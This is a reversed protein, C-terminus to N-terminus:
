RMRAFQHAAGLALDSVAQAASSDLRFAGAVRGPLMLGFALREFTRGRTEIVAALAVLESHPGGDERGGLRVDVIKAGREQEKRSLVLSEVDADSLGLQTAVYGLPTM